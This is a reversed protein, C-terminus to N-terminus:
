LYEEPIRGYGEPDHEKIIAVKRKWNLLQSKQEFTGDEFINHCAVPNSGREEYCELEINSEDWILESKGLNKCDPRSITHSRSLPRNSRGCGECIPERELMITDCIEAYKRKIQVESVLSGDSCRYKPKNSIAKISFKKKLQSKIHDKSDNSEFSNRDRSIEKSRHIAKRQKDVRAQNAKDRKEDRKQKFGQKFIEYPTLETVNDHIEELPVKEGRQEKLRKTNCSSCLGYKRNVIPLHKNCGNCEEIKLEM